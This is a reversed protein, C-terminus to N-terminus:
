EVIMPGYATNEECLMDRAQRMHKATDLESLGHQKIDQLTAALGSQSVHPLRRRLEELQLLRRKRAPRM